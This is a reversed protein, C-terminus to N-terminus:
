LIDRVYIFIIVFSMSQGKRKKRKEGGGVEGGGENEKQISSFTSSYELFLGSM